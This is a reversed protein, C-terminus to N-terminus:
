FPGAQALELDNSALTDFVCNQFERIGLIHSCATEADERSVTTMGLRRAARQSAAASSSTTKSSPLICQTPYQPSRATTFLLREDRVQWEQGFLIPDDIVTRNDRALMAGTNFQGMLGVSNHFSENNGHDVVVSVMDKFTKIVVRESNKGLHIEFKSEKESMVSHSVALPLEAASIGNFMYNGWSSVQLIDNGIMVAASEIYSYDKPACSLLLLALLRSLHLICFFGTLCSISTM